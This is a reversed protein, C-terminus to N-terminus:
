EGTVKGVAWLLGSVAFVPISLVATVGLALMVLQVEHPSHVNALGLGIGSFTLAGTAIMTAGSIVATWGVRTTHERNM